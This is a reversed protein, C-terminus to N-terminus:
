RRPKVIKAMSALKPSITLRAKEAAELNLEFEFSQQAPASSWRRDVKPVLNIVGGRLAFQDLESVTLIPKGLAQNLLQDARGKQAQSLFLMHCDAVNRFDAPTLWSPGALQVKGSLRKIIPSQNLWLGIV